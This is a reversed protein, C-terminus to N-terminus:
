NKPAGPESHDVGVSDINMDSNQRIVMATDDKLELDPPKPDINDRVLVESFPNTLFIDRRKAAEKNILRMINLHDEEMKRKGELLHQQEMNRNSDEQICGSIPSAMNKSNLIVKSSSAGMSVSKKSVQPKSKVSVEKHSVLKKEQQSKVSSKQTNKGAKPDRVRVVKPQVEQKFEKGYSHDENDQNESQLLAFRSGNEIQPNSKAATLGPGRIERIEKRDRVKM